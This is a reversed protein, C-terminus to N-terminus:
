KPACVKMLRDRKKKKKKGGWADAGWEDRPRSCGIVDKEPFVGPCHRDTQGVRKKKRKEKRGVGAAKGGGGGGGRPPLYVSASSKKKRKKKKKEERPSQLIGCRRKESLSSLERRRSKGGEKKGEASPAKKQSEDFRLWGTSKKGAPGTALGWKKEGGSMSKEQALGTDGRNKTTRLLSRNKPKPPGALVDM